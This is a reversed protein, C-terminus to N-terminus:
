TGQIFPGPDESAVNQTNEIFIWMIFVMDHAVIYLVM